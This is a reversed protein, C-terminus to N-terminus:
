WNVVINLGTAVASPIAENGNPHILFQVDPQLLLGPRIRWGYNCEVAMEFQQIGTSLNPQGEEARRLDRSYSGYVVAVGMFDKPRRRSPGYAVLGTDFFYPLKNVSQNPAFTFAGFSGLHRNAEADGWRSLTKDGLIYLGYRGHETETPQNAIGSGFTPWTGGNYYGGFKLNGSPTSSNPHNRRFGLEGIFFLPGRMSFDLGHHSGDKLNPDGNYAGIMMYFQKAPKFKIRAGWTTDPYGFAGPANLFIGLPVLDIGVSTFAKFYESGLFEEGSVSNITLRGVRVSLKGEFAEQTYSLYTLRPHADAVDALQVPFSNGVYNQSLSTGFNVAFGVHFTGGHWGLLKDTNLSIGFGVLNYVSAGPQLGGTLNGFPDSISLLAFKIGQHALRSRVGMWDGLLYKDRFQDSTDAAANLFPAHFEFESKQDPVQTPLSPASSDQPIPSAFQATGSVIAVVCFMLAFVVRMAAIMLASSGGSPKVSPWPRHSSSYTVASPRVGQQGTRERSAKRSEQNV